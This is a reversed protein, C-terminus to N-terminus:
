QNRCSYNWKNYFSVIWFKRITALVSLLSIWQTRGLFVVVVCM